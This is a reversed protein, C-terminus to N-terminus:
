HPHDDNTLDCLLQHGPSRPSLLNPRRRSYQTSQRRPSSRRQRQTPGDLSSSFRLRLVRDRSVCWSSGGARRTPAPRPHAEPSLGFALEDDRKAVSDSRRGKRREAAAMVAFSEVTIDDVYTGHQLLDRAEERVSLAAIV